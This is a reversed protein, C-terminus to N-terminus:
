PWWRWRDRKHRNIHGIDRLLNRMEAPKRPGHASGGAWREPRPAAFFERRGAHADRVRAQEGAEEVGGQGYRAILFTLVRERVRLLWSHADQSDAALRLRIHMLRISWQNLFWFLAVPNEL